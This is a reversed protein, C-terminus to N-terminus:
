VRYQSKRNRRRKWNGQFAKTAMMKITKKEEERKSKKTETSRDTKLTEIQKMVNRGARREGFNYRTNTEPSANASVKRQEGTEQM